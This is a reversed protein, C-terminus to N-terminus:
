LQFTLLEMSVNLLCLMTLIHWVIPYSISSLELELITWHPIAFRRNEGVLCYACHVRDGTCFKWKQRDVPSVPCDGVQMHEWGQTETSPLTLSLASLVSLIASVDCWSVLLHHASKPNLGTLEKEKRPFQQASIGGNFLHKQPRVCRRLM